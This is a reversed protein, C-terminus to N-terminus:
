SGIPITKMPKRDRVSSKGCDEPLYIFGKLIQNWGLEGFEDRTMRGRHRGEYGLSREM